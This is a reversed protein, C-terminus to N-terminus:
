DSREYDKELCFSTGVIAFGICAAIMTGQWPLFFGVCVIAIGLAFIGLFRKTNM